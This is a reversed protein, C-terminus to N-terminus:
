AGPWGGLLPVPDVPRGSRWVEFHLHPGSARGSQGSLGIVPRGELRQRETVHIESLHAYLTRIGGGHDIIVVHGFGTRTGAFVVVGPAVARVATGPDAAIDVGRHVEPRLGILRIGYPSTIPADVPWRPLSCGVGLWAIAAAALLPRASM